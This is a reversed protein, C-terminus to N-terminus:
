VVDEAGAGDPVLQEPFLQYYTCMLGADSRLQALLINNAPARLLAAQGVATRGVGRLGRAAGVARRAPLPVIALVATNGLM